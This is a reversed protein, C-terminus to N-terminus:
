DLPHRVPRIKVYM